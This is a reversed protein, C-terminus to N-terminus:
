TTIYFIITAVFLKSLNKSSIDRCLLIIDCCLENQELLIIDCCLFYTAVYNKAAEFLIIDHCLFYTAVYNGVIELLSFWDKDRCLSIINSCLLILTVVFSLIDRCDLSNEKFNCM